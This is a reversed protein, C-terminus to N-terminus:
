LDYSRFREDRRKKKEGREKHFDLVRRRTGIIQANRASPHAGRALKVCHRGQEVHKVDM